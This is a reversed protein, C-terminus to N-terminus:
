RIRRIMTAFLLTFIGAIVGFGVLTDDDSDNVGDDVENPDAPASDDVSETQDAETHDDEETEAETPALTTAIHNIVLVIRPGAQNIYNSNVVITQDLQMATTEHLSEAIPPADHSDDYMIWDPDFDVVREENIQAWDTLEAVIGLNEGGAREIADSQFTGAGTTWGDGLEYYILPEELEATMADIEALETQMWDITDSAGDCADLMQGYLRVKQSIDEITTPQPGMYVTLGENRLTEATSPDAVHGMVVLDPDLDIIREVEPFGVDDTVDTPRDHEDLYATFPAVPAGTVRDWLGIDHAVQAASAHTVVIEEPPEEIWVTEGTGDEIAYPFTCDITPQDQAPQMAIGMTPIAALMGVIMILVLAGAKTRSM